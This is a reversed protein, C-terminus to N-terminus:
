EVKTFLWRCGYDCSNKLEIKDATIHYTYVKPNGDILYTSDTVNLLKRPMTVAPDTIYLSDTDTYRYFIYYTLVLHTETGNANGNFSDTM